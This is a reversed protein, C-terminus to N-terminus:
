IKARYSEWDFVLECGGGETMRDIVREGVYNVLNERTENSILITPKMEEYRNNIIEFIILKESDSNYQVGVEDIILLKPYSFYRIVDDESHESDKKWSARFDRIIELVSTMRVLHMHKNVVHKAIATALHNKGTGPLGVMVMGGGKELRELWKDAYAKCIKLNREANKNVAVYNDFSCNQFRKPVDLEDLLQNLKSEKEAQKRKEVKNKILDIEIQACVPCMTTTKVAQFKDLTRTWQTFVGHGKECEVNNKVVTAGDMESLGNIASGLIIEAKKLKDLEFDDM